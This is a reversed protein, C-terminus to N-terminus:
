GLANIGQSGKDPDPDDMQLGVTLKDGKPSSSRGKGMTLSGMDRGVEDKLCGRLGIEM